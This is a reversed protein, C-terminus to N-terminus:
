RPFEPDVLAGLYEKRLLMGVVSGLVESAAIPAVRSFFSRKVPRLRTRRVGPTDAASAVGSHVTSPPVAVTLGSDDRNLQDALAKADRRESGMLCRTDVTFRWAARRV